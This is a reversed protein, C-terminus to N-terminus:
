ALFERICRIVKDRQIQTLGPFVPLALVERAAQECHPLSPPPGASDRFCEQLHLPVPYYIATGIRRSTLYDQLEDRRQTRIVFQNFIHRRGPLEVPLRILGREQLDALGRVYARANARRQEHCAELHPLKVRLVAAQLADIRFNGGVVDHYYRKTAGHDRLLRIKEALELDNTSVLGADGMAGLNKSPFFSFCGVDGMSGASSEYYQAGIAQAADEIVRVGRKRCIEIIPKMEAVQGYLHVPVAARTRATILRELEAPDMNFTVPDIDCFIPVAGLRHVSGATSFFTFSPVIVEHGPGIGMAMMSVILADTGSSVGVAHEVGLYQAMEREFGEVEPGGIFRNSEVVGVVADKLAAQIPRHVPELDLLPVAPDEETLHVLDDQQM